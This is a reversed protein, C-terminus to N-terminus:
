QLLYINKGKYRHNNSIHYSKGRKIVGSYSPLETSDPLLLLLDEGLIVMPLKVAQTLKGISRFRLNDQYALTELVVYYHDKNKEFESSWTFYVYDDKTLKGKTNNPLDIYSSQTSIPFDNQRNLPNTM